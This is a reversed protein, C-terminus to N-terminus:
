RGAPAGSWASWLRSYVGGEALLADHDGIEVVRGHSMVAIRDCARAQTLRHAVVLATTGRLLEVAARELERSGASNAEATAEDLVVVPSDRLAIRALALHQEHAPSLAHGGAGVVTDLGQPLARVWGAADVKELATWIRADDADPRALLLDDRLPGAFVHSEQSVLTVFERLEDAPLAGVRRVPDAAEAPVLEVEGGSAPFVGAVIAALTTKGAGSEGVVALSTGAPIELDLGHLVPRGDDYAHEVGRVRV